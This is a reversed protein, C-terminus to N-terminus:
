KRIPLGDLTQVPDGATLRAAGQFEGLHRLSLPGRGGGSISPGTGPNPPPPQFKKFLKGITSVSMRTKVPVGRHEYRFDWMGLSAETGPLGPVQTVSDKPRAPTFAM